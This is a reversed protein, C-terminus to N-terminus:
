RCPCGQCNGSEAGHRHLLLDDVRHDVLQEALGLVVVDDDRGIQVAVDEGIAGGGQHPREAEDGAGVDALAEGDALRAVPTGGVDHTLADGVGDRRQAAGGQHQLEQVLLGGGGPDVSGHIGVELLALEEARIQATRRLGLFDERVNEPPQLRSSM